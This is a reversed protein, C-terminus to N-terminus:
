EVEIEAEFARWIATGDEQIVPVFEERRHDYLGLLLRYRGPALGLPLQQLRHDAVHGTDDWLDRRPPTMDDEIVAQGTSADLLKFFVVVDDISAESLKQMYFTFGVSDGARYRQDDLTVYTLRLRNGFNLDPAFFRERDAEKPLADVMDGPEAVRVNQVATITQGLVSLRLEVTGEGNQSVPIDLPVFSKGEPYSIPFHGERVGCVAQGEANRWCYELGYKPPMVHVLTSGNQNEVVVFAVYEQGRGAMDPLYLSLHPAAAQKEPRQLHYVLDNNFQQVLVLDGAFRSLRKEFGSWAEPEFEARHVIVYDVGMGRLFSSAETGPFHLIRDLTDQFLPPVFGSYGMISPRWHYTSFYQQRALREMSATDEWFWPSQVSPLELIVSGEPTSNLWRYVEPVRGGVEIPRNAEPMVTVEVLLVVAVVALVPARIRILWMSGYAAMVSLSFAVLAVLRAPVRMAGLGPIWKLLFAYPLPQLLVPGNSTLRLSTGLSLIIAVLGLLLYFRAERDPEALRPWQRSPLNAKARRFLSSAAGLAALGLPIFGPFLIWGGGPTPLLFPVLRGSTSRPSATTYDRLSAGEQEGVSRQGVTSRAELYPQFVVAMLAMVLLLAVALRRWVGKKADTRKDHWSYWLQFTLYLGVAFTTYFAYYVCSLIQLVFFLTFLYVDRGKGTRFYRTLYLFALPLWQITLNQLQSIGNLRYPAFAFVIGAIMAARRSGTLYCVLLYAGFGSLVFSSLIALNHAPIPNGTALLIPAFLLAIGLLNESYALTAPYPYFINANFLGLPNRVLQHADWALIWSNLLPDGYNAISDVVHLALPHTLLLTLIAFIALVLLSRHWKELRSLHPVGIM